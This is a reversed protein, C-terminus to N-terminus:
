RRPVEVVRGALPGAEWDRDSRGHLKMFDDVLAHFEQWGALSLDLHTDVVEALADYSHPVQWGLHTFLRRAYADAVFVGRGLLYLMIVDATEPGVGRLARLRARLIPTPLHVLAPATACPGDTPLADAGGEDVWWACLGRLAAAKANQFGSPAVLSVLTAPDCALLRAPDTVGAGRLRSLSREVNRWNTNQVLVCGLLVEFSTDVTWCHPRPGIIGRLTDPLDALAIPAPSGGGAPRSPLTRDAEM